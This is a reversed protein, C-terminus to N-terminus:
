NANLARPITLILNRKNHTYAVSFTRYFQALISRHPESYTGFSSRMPNRPTRFATGFLPESTTGFQGEVKLIKVCIIVCGAARDFGLIRGRRLLKRVVFYHIPNCLYVSIMVYFIIKVFHDFHVFATIDVNAATARDLVIYMCKYMTSIVINIRKNRRSNGSYLHM